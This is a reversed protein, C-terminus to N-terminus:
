EEQGYFQANLHKDEESVAYDADDIESLSVYLANHDLTELLFRKQEELTLDAFDEAHENVAAVDVKYSLFAQEQMKQWLDGLEGASAAAQIRQVHRENWEMLECYVFDGGGQWNVTKSIGSKEGKITNKLRAVSLEEIYDLQEVGIFQRDLKLAVAATTGSGVFFDLVLDGENSCLEIIRAILKEPKKGKRLQVGGENHLDNPLVDDWIDTIPQAFTKRGDIEIMRDIAFLILKGNYVYYPRKDGRDLYFVRDPEAESQRKVRVAEQSISNEDLSAFQMVRESNQYVFSDLKEGYDRGLHERLKFKDIGVRVSLAELVTTFEWQERGDEFNEIFGNYRTDRERPVYVRNPNWYSLDRSYIVVFESINVVGPNIVKAGTVSGRKVTVINKRNEEGFVEDLVVLLYALENQDISIAITGDKSLMERAIELRNRIFTLWTSHNFSDNYGFSDNGTNYPPDIYILKVQGGFRRTLSHLALLNNGKIILNDTPQLATVPHEGEADVRRFNTLVKPDLLRDVDDPALTTNWFVEDRKADEKTQGGELVCDKYPWVLAVERRSLYSRGGDDSLGIKNKFATYSDPLFQKNSVFQLFKEKDFVLVGDVEAFFHRRIRDHSLLLRLLDADLKLGLEIIMNKLLKGEETTLREDQALLQRLDEFLNQM